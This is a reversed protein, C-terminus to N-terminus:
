LRWYAFEDTDYDAKNFIGKIDLFVRTKHAPNFWKKVDEPKISLFDEHAVAVLVADMDHLEDMSDFTIGYLRKAEDSDAQPDIVIPDIGYEKLENYIDIVKTNRTDPCNEKFTFGLIGVRAGKVGIDQAILNKVCCEAIYKGMDDNIRRGSLIIQSHYGLSEAKYTLYYPDVGICHGGVLGPTFKLFNWKTGAAELVSKTDIGMRHFIMSLENMFAINIDRQSNEIVKAAEAVKISEAKHVGALAVLKYVNAVEELTEEDMGSVIKTITELRHVKDGPNIREPSYGVKFDVGCKLGSEKELIPVCIDETVGPYVTSEYVVISGKTLYKGLTRTASEVPTLDPTHDDNVPTPVAVVHFKCEKLKEPDATFEVKTQKIAEDGVERTPDIGRHYLAVKEANFDYGVVKIKKAFAVAIPMGVYGLGVLSLKEEGALLKEYLSM